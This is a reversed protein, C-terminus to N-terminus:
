TLSPVSLFPCKDDENFDSLVGLATGFPFWNCVVDLAVILGVGRGCPIGVDVVYGLAGRICEFTKLKAVYGM